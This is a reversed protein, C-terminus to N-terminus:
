SKRKRLQSQLDELRAILEPANLKEFEQLNTQPIGLLEELLQIKGISEGESRGKERGIQEGEQRGAQRGEQIGESRAFELRAAEDRQFKLRTDYALRQEPNRAIMELVGIAEEFAPEALINRLESASYRDANRLFYSWQELASVQKMNHENAQSKSLEVLHIQLDDTFTRGDTSRLRFDSHLNSTDALLPRELVCISIAPRLSAYSEGESLQGVYLSSAYYVLRQTLGAPLSTQMEINFQRGTADIALVDLIALKDDDYDPSLLPNLIEVHEIRPACELVANLFHVTIATHEPSGLLRKFAFDVTPRIGLSM